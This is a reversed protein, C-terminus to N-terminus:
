FLSPERLRFMELLKELPMVYSWKKGGGIVRLKKEVFTMRRLIFAPGRSNRHKDSKSLAGSPGVLMPVNLVVDLQNGEGRVAIGYPELCPWYSRFRSELLIQGITAERALQGDLVISRNLIEEILEEADSGTELGSQKDMWSQAVQRVDAYEVGSMAGAASFAVAVGESLRAMSPAARLDEPLKSAWRLVQEHVVMACALLKHGLLMIDKEGPLHISREGAGAMELTVLRNLDAEDGSAHYIGCIWPMHRLRFQQARHSSTGLVIDGSRGAARLDKLIRKHDSGKKSDFEDLIIPGGNCGIQQRMGAASGGTSFAGCALFLRHVFSAFVSKGCNSPGTVFLIPRYPLFTQLWTAELFGTVLLGDDEPSWQWSSVIEDLTHHVGARWDADSAKEVYRSLLECDFWDRFCGADLNVVTGHVLPGAHRELASGSYRFARPCKVLFLQPSDYRRPENLLWLGHGITESKVYDLESIYAAVTDLFQDFSVQGPKASTQGRAVLEVFPKGALQIMSRYNIWSIGKFSLRNNLNFCEMTIAGSEDMATIFLGLDQLLKPRPDDSTSESMADLTSDPEWEPAGEAMKQLQDATGGAAFFDSVDGKPPLGPIQVIKVSLASGKLAAATRIADLIGPEDNDPLIVVNRGEMTKSYSQNWRKGKGAGGAKTTALLGLSMLLDADKEGECWFVDKDRHALIEPLNYLVRRIGQTSYEWGGGPKPSRQVFAKPEYRVVQFRLDRKAGLYDYTAVVRRSQKGTEHPFLDAMSLGIAAVVDEPRCGRHCNILVKGGQTPTVSLSPNTDEHAPCKAIYGSGSQRHDIRALVKELPTQEM